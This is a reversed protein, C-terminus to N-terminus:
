QSSRKNFFKNISAMKQTYTHSWASESLNCCMSARLCVLCVLRALLMWRTAEATTQDMCRPTYQRASSSSSGRQKWRVPTKQTPAGMNYKSDAVGPVKTQHTKNVPLHSRIKSSKSDFVKMKVVRRVFPLIIKCGRNSPSLRRRTM